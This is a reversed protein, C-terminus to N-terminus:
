VGKKEASPQRSRRSETAEISGGRPSESAEAGRPNSRLLPQSGAETSSDRESARYAREAEQRAQSAASQRAPFVLTMAGVLPASFLLLIGLIIGSWAMGTGKLQGNSRRIKSLAVTGFIIALIPCAALAIMVLLGLIAAAITM